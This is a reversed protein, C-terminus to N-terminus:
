VGPGAWFNWHSPVIRVILADAPLAGRAYQWYKQKLLQAARQHVEGSRLLDARGRVLIYWLKAWVDTYETILLAVQANSQINRVRALKESAVKKPKRDIPTYFCAGDYAYCVPVAHPRGFTDVTSLMAFRSSQLRSAVWAPWPESM